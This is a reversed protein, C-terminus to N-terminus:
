SLLYNNERMRSGRAFTNLSTSASEPLGSKGSSDRIACTGWKGGRGLCVPVREWRSRPFFFDGREARNKKRKKKREREGEGKKTGKVGRYNGGRDEGEGWAGRGGRKGEGLFPRRAM